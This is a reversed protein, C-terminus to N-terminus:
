NASMASLVAVQAATFAFWLGGIVSPRRQTINFASKPCAGSVCLYNFLSPSLNLHWIWFSAMGLSTCGGTTCMISKAAGPRTLARVAMFRLQWVAGTGLAALVLATLHNFDDFFLEGCM